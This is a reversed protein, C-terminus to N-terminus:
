SKKLIPELRARLKRRARNIRSKVTGLPVRHMDAIEQLPREEIEALIFTSHFPEPLDALAADLLKFFERSELETGVTRPDPQPLEIAGPVNERKRKEIVDLCTNRAIALLWGRLSGRASDFKPLRRYAKLFVDQAVDEAEHSDRLFHYAFRYVIERHREVIERFKDRDGAAALRALTYDKEEDVEDAM